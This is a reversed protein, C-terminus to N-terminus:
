FTQVIRYRVIIHITNAYKIATLTAKHMENQLLFL